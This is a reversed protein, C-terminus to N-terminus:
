CYDFKFQHFSTNYKVLPYQDGDNYTICSIQHKIYESQFVNIDQLYPFIVEELLIKNGRLDVNESQM